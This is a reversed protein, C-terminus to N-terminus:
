IFNSAYCQGQWMWSLHLQIKSLHLLRLYKVIRLTIQSSRLYRGLPNLNSSQFSNGKDDKGDVKSGVFSTASLMCCLWMLNSSCKSTYDYCKYIRILNKKTVLVKLSYTFTIKKKQNSFCFWASLVIHFLNEIIKKLIYFWITYLYKFIYM